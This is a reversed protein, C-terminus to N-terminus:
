ELVSSVQSLSARVLKVREAADLPLQDLDSGTPLPEEAAQLLSLRQIAVIEESLPKKWYTEVPERKDKKRFNVRVTRVLGRKNKFVDVVRALRYDDNLNGDYHMMVIDGPKLNKKANKWRRCPVLTPLVDQIWRSWWSSFLKQVYSLRASFKNSEDYELEPVDITARGLILHNPTLPLLTDEQQSNPSVNRIALPRSNISYSIRALLTVLESYTLDAGQNFAFSLSRKFVKVTSESLGNRHQGGVPVFVWDTASNAGTVKKWDLRNVPLDSNAIVIGAAVLQTGRDSVISDPKGKRFIFEEHKSLFDQTSYGSTALLCVSKTARCTYVLVWVKMKTRKNVESKVILPGAFDLAVHRWPPSVSLSEQSIDAMQQVLLQKRDRICKLCSNAVKRALNRGKVIWVFRRSRALTAVASRHVLGFEGAHAYVMFLYSVRSEPMLIPLSDVGLLRTLSQEGLRGRTVILKGDRLPLLSDLKGSDLADKTFPMAHLLLMREAKQLEARTPEEAILNYAEANGIKMGGSKRLESGLGRFYRALIRKIKVISESYYLLEDVVFWPNKQYIGSKCFNFRATAAFVTKDRLKYEVDPIDEPSYSASVPWEDRPLSFFHPGIQHVSTPGLEAITATARTTIDSPNLSSEIYHIDEMSCIKRFQAINDRIEAVRNQFYPLLTRSSYVSSLACKSDVLMIATIPPHDLKRLARCVTLILRSQLTLASLEGRPVTLGSIPPVKAKCIALRSSFKQCSDDDLRWRLYVRADLGKSGYDSCGVLEPGVSSIANEPRTCRPFYLDGCELTELMLEIWDNRFSEPIPSDWTLPEELLFLQRMLDKYRIIFPAAMGLFDGFGNVVGLLIRKSLPKTKLKEIDRLTLNPLHVTEAWVLTLNQATVKNWILRVGSFEVETNKGGAFIRGSFLIWIFNEM